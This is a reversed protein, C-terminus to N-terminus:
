CHHGSRQRKWLVGLLILSDAVYITYLTLLVQNALRIESPISTVYGALVIMALLVGISPLPLPPFEPATRRKEEMTMTRFVWFLFVIAAVVQYAWFVTVRTSELSAELGRVGIFGEYGGLIVTGVALWLILGIGFVRELRTVPRPSVQEPRNFLFFALGFALGGGLGITMEWNKWWDIRLDSGHFTQWYGGMAFPLAFGLAMTLMVKVARWDRRALEFGLFGAFLGVHQAITIISRMARASTAYEEVQYYGEGCFPLFLGPFWKVLMTGLVAGSLGAVIRGVWTAWNVPEKPASWAMFSGTVGGWHIGCFFLMVYGTWPAIERLVENGNMQYVGNLWSIYVGYGTLGGLAIGLTIAAFTRGSGHPRFAGDGRSHSFALWLLAWGLGALAGGSSGGFGGTGRIAWFFAGMLGMISATLLYDKWDYASDCTTKGVTAAVSM